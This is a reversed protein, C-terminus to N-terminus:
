KRFLKVDSKGYEEEAFEVMMRRSMLKGHMACGFNQVRGQGVKRWCYTDESCKRGGVGPSRM